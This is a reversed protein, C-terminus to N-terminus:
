PEQVYGTHEHVIIAATAAGSALEIVVPDDNNAVFAGAGTRTHPVGLYSFWVTEDDTASGDGNVVSVIEAGPFQSAVYVTAADDGLPGPVADVALTDPDFRVLDIRDAGDTRFRVGTPAGTAMAHARAYRLTRQVEDVAAQDRQGDLAGLGPSVIATLIGLIIIVM